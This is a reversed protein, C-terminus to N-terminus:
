NGQGVHGDVSCFRSDTREAAFGSALAKFAALLLFNIAFVCNSVGYSAADTGTSLALACM